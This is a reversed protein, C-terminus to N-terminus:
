SRGSAAIPSRSRRIPAPAGGARAPDLVVLRTGAALLSGATLGCMAHFTDSFHSPSAFGADAAATTLDAGAAVARGVGLMRAWLRYRRFTTGSQANFLRLFRSASLHAARALEAAAHPDAPDALMTAMAASIRPDVTPAPSGCALEVAAVPDFLPQAALAILREEAAHAVGIGAGAHATMRERCRPARPSGPDLYCFLMSTGHAVVRHTTLPPILASRVTHERGDAVLTFPADVGVALCHVTGRHADLRLSPGRYM